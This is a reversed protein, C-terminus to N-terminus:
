LKAGFGFREGNAFATEESVAAASGNAEIAAGRRHNSGGFFV